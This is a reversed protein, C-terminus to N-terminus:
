VQERGPASSEARAAWANCYGGASVPGGLIQCRGCGDAGAATFFQCGACHRPLANPSERLYGQAQRLGRESTSLLEPDVCRTESRSCALAVLGLGGSLLSLRRCGQAVLQRRTWRPAM